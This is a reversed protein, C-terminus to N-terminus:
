NHTYLCWICTSLYIPLYVFLYSPLCTILTTPLFVPLIYTSRGIPLYTLLCTTHCHIRALLRKYPSHPLLQQQRWWSPHLASPGVAWQDSSGNTRCGMLRVARQDSFRNTQFLTMPGFVWQNSSGNTRFVMPGVVWKDFFWNTQFLTM